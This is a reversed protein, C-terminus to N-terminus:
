DITRDKILYEALLMIIAAGLLFVGVVILLDLGEM